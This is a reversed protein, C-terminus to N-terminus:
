LALGLRLGANVSGQVRETLSGAYETLFSRDLTMMQSVNIVSDGPLGSLRRPLLVNGPASALGMNSTITAVIVTRFAAKISTDAQIILVPRPFAPESRRQEPLHAWWIEGRQLDSM